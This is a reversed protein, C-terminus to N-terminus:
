LYDRVVSIAQPELSPLPDSKKVVPKKFLGMNNATLRFNEKDYAFTCLHKILNITMHDGLADKFLTEPTIEGDNSFHKLYKKDTYEKNIKAWLSFIQKANEFKYHSSFLPNQDLQLNHFLNGMVFLTTVRLDIFDSHHSSLVSPILLKIPLFVNDLNRVVFLLNWAIYLNKWQDDIPAEKRKKWTDDIELNPILSKETGEPLIIKTATYRVTFHKEELMGILGLAAIANDQNGSTADQWAAELINVGMASQTLKNSNPSFEAPTIGANFSSLQFKNIFAQVDEKTEERAGTTKHLVISAMAPDVSIMKLRKFLSTQLPSGFIFNAFPNGPYYSARQTLIYLYSDELMRPSNIMSVIIAEFLFLLHLQLTITTVANNIESDSILENKQINALFTCLPKNKLLSYKINQILLSADMAENQIKEIFNTIRTDTTKFQNLKLEKILRSMLDADTMTPLVQEIRSLFLGAFERQNFMM